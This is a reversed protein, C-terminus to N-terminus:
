ITLIHKRAGCVSLPLSISHTDFVHHTHRIKGRHFEIQHDFIRHNISCENVNRHSKYSKHAPQRAHSHQITEPKEDHGCNKVMGGKGRERAASAQVCIANIWPVFQLSECVLCLFVTWLFRRVCWFILAHFTSHINEILQKLLRRMVCSRVFREFNISM